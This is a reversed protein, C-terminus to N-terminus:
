RRVDVTIGREALIIRLRPLSRKLLISVNADSCGLAKAIDTQMMGDLIRLRLIQATRHAFQAIAQELVARYWENMPGSDLDDAAPMHAYDDWDDMVRRTRLYDIARCRTVSFLWNRLSAASLRGQRARQWTQWFADQCCEEAGNDGIHKAAFRRLPEWWWACIIELASEDGNTMREILLADNPLVM